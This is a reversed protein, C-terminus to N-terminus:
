RAPAMPPSPPPAAPAEPVPAAPVPTRVPAAAPAPHEPELYHPGMEHWADAEARWDLVPTGDARRWARADHYAYFFNGYFANASGRDDYGKGRVYAEVEELTPRVPRAQAQTDNM